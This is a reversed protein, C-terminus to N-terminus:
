PGHQFHSGTTLYVTAPHYRQKGLTVCSPCSLDPFSLYDCIHSIFFHRGGMQLFAAELYFVHQPSYHGFTKCTQLTSILKLETQLHQEMFVKENILQYIKLQHLM